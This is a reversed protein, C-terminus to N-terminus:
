AVERPHIARLAGAMERAAVGLGHHHQLHMWSRADTGIYRARGLAPDATVIWRARLIKSIREPTM